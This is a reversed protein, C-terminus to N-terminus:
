MGFADYGTGAHGGGPLHEPFMEPLVQWLRYPVGRESNDAGISGYRYHETIDDFEETPQPIIRWYLYTGIVFLVVFLGFWRVRRRRRLELEIPTLSGLPTAM